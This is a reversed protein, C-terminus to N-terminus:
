VTLEVPDVIDEPTKEAKSKANHDEPPSIELLWQTVLGPQQEHHHFLIAFCTMLLLWSVTRSPKITTRNRVTRYLNDLAYTCVYSALEV